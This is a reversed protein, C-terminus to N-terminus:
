EGKTKGDPVFQFSEVVVRLTSRKQGDTTEWQNFQLRGEILIPSGKVLFESIVEATRAFANCDVFCVEEKQEGDKDKWKRNIAIGFNGIATGAQTYKLEVDRTLHGALLVKNLYM